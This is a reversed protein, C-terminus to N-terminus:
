PIIYTNLTSLTFQEGDPAELTLKMRGDMGVFKYEEGAVDYLTQGLKLRNAPIDLYKKVSIRKTNDQYTGHFMPNFRAKDTGHDQNAVHITASKGENVKEDICEKLIKGLKIMKDDKM